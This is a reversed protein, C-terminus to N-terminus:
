GLLDHAVRESQANRVEIAHKRRQAGILQNGDVTVGNLQHITPAELLKAM